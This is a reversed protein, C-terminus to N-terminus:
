KHVGGLIDLALKVDISLAQDTPTTRSPTMGTTDDGVVGEKELNGALNSSAHLAIMLSLWAFGRTSNGNCQGRYEPKPTYGQMHCDLFYPHNPEHSGLIAFSTHFISPLVESTM